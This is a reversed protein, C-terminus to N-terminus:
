LSQPHEKNWIIAKLPFGNGIGGLYDPHRLQQLANRETTQLTSLTINLTRAAKVQTQPSTHNIGFRLSLVRQEIDSLRGLASDILKRMATSEQVIWQSWSPESNNLWRIFDEKLISIDTLGELDKNLLQCLYTRFDNETFQVRPRQIFAVDTLAEILRVYGLDHAPIPPHYCAHFALSVGALFCTDVIEGLGLHTWLLQELTLDPQTANGSKKKVQILIEVLKTFSKRSDGIQVGNAKEFFRDMKSGRCHDLLRLIQSKKLGNQFLVTIIYQRETYQLKYFNNLDM